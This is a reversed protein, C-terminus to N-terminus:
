EDLWGRIGVWDSRSHDCAGTRETNLRKVVRHTAHHLVVASRSEIIQPHTIALPKRYESAINVRNHITRIQGNKRRGQDQAQNEFAPPGNPHIDRVITLNM